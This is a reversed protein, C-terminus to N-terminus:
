RLVPSSDAWPQTSKHTLAQSPSRKNTAQLVACLPCPGKGSDFRSRERGRTKNCKSRISGSWEVIVGIGELIGGGGKATEGLSDLGSQANAQSNNM